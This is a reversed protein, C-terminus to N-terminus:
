VLDPTLPYKWAEGDKAKLAAIACFVVHLLGVIPLLLLGILVVMLVSSVIYGITVVIQFNLANAANEQAFSDDDAALYIILPGIFGTFIALVHSLAALGTDDAM